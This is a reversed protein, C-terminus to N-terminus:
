WQATFWNEYKMESIYRSFFFQYVPNKIYIIVKEVYEIRKVHGLVLILTWNPYLSTDWM